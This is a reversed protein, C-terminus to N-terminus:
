RIGRFNYTATACSTKSRNQAMCPTSLAVCSFRSKAERELLGGFYKLCRMGVPAAPRSVQSRLPYNTEVFFRGKQESKNAFEPVRIVFFEWRHRPLFSQMVPSNGIASFIDM